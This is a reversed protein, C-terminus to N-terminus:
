PEGRVRVFGWGDPQLDRLYGRGHLHELLKQKLAKERRRLQIRSLGLRDSADEQALGEVFRLEYLRSETADLGRRFAELLAELERDEHWQEGQDLTLELGATAELDLGAPLDRRRLQELVVNRAIGLLYHGYPRIGDYLGRSRPEFARAFTEFVVNEIEMAARVHAFAGGQHARARLVRSLADVHARFVESLASPDGERFKRLLAPDWEM